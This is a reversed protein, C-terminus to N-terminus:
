SGTSQYELRIFSPTGKMASTSVKFNFTGSQLNKLIGPNIAGHYSGGVNSGKSDYFHAGVGVNRQIKSGAAINETQGGISWSKSASDFKTVLNLTKFQNQKAVCQTDGALQCLQASDLLLLYSPRKGQSSASFINNSIVDKTVTEVTTKHVVVDKTCVGNHLHYGSPCSSSPPAKNVPYCTGTEDEFHHEYGAPCPKDPVCHEDDNLFFDKPCNGYQDPKCKDQEPHFLCSDDPGSSSPPPPQTTPTCSPDNPNKKCDTKM